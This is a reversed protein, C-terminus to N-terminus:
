LYSHIFQNFLNFIQNPKPRSLIKFVREKKNLTAVLNYFSFLGIAYLMILFVFSVYKRNQHTSTLVNYVESVCLLEVTCCLIM